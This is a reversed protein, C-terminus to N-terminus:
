NNPSQASPALLGPSQTAAGGAMLGALGYPQLADDGGGNFRLARKSLNGSPGNLFVSPHRSVDIVNESERMGPTYGSLELALGNKLYPKVGNEDLLHSDAFRGAGWGRGYLQHRETVSLPRMIKPEAFAGVGASRSREDGM